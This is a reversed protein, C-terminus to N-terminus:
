PCSKHTNRARRAVCTDLAWCYRSLRGEEPAHNSCEDSTSLLWRRIPSVGIQAAVDSAALALERPDLGRPVSRKNSM